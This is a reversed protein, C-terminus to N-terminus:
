NINVTPQGKINVTGGNLNLQSQGEITIENGKLSINGQSDLTIAGDRDIKLSAKNDDIGLKVVPDDDKLSLSVVVWPSFSKM